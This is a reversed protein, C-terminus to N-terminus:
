IKYRVDIVFGSKVAEEMEKKSGKFRLGLIYAGPEDLMIDDATDGDLVRYGAYETPLEEKKTTSFVVSVPAGMELAQVCEDWNEESKSFTLRYPTDIYKKIKGFIKTYDYYVLNPIGIPEVGTRSKILNILDLDSTGNLRVAITNGNKTARKSLLGLEKLLQEAFGQKDNLYYETKRIRAEQVSNFKGRGSNYLCAASCGKSAKPCVSIGKSNQKDPSMYMIVSERRNKKTKANTTGKSILNM